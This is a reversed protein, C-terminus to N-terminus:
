NGKAMYDQLIARLEKLANWAYEYNNPSKQQFWTWFQNFPPEQPDTLGGLIVDLLQLNKPTLFSKLKLVAGFM